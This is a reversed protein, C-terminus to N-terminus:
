LGAKALVRRAIEAMEADPGCEIIRLAEAMDPAAAILKANHQQGMQLCAIVTGDASVNGGREATWPGPTYKTNSM